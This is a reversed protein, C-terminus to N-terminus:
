NNHHVVPHVGSIDWLTTLFGFRSRRECLCRIGSVQSPWIGCLSTGSDVQCVPWGDTWPCAESRCWDERQHLKLHCTPGAFVSKIVSRESSKLFLDYYDWHNLRLSSWPCVKQWVDIWIFTNLHVHCPPLPVRSLCCRREKGLFFIDLLQVLGPVLQLNTHFCSICPQTATRGGPENLGAAEDTLAPSVGSINGLYFHVSLYGHSTNPMCFSDCTWSIESASAGPKPSAIMPFACACVCRRSFRRGTMAEAYCFLCMIM